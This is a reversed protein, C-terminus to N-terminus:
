HGKHPHTVTVLPGVVVGVPAGEVRGVFAGVPLGDCPGVCSGELYHSNAPLLAQIVQHQM